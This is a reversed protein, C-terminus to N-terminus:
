VEAILDAPIADGPSVAHSDVVVEGAATLLALRSSLTAKQLEPLSKSIGSWNENGIEDELTVLISRTVQLESQVLSQRLTNELSKARLIGFLATIIIRALLLFLISWSLRLQFKMSDHSM